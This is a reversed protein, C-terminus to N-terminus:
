CRYGTVCAAMREVMAGLISDRWLIGTLPDDPTVFVARQDALDVKGATAAISQGAALLRAARERTAELLRRVQATYRHDHMVPGHGPVMATIPTAELARLVDIWPVPYSEWAYPVPHVVIDGSFLIREAPLYVTVDHPSNARGRDVLEVARAGLDLAMSGDFLVDPPSVRVQAYEELQVRREGIITELTALEAPSYRRGTSDRGSRRVSDLHAVIGRLASGPAVASTPYRAQNVAIFDRNQRAGIIALGPFSDRYVANGHTHDGHWHTNVLWRVPLNTVARILGIDARARSPYLTADVVLVGAAGLIVGTNGHPWDMTNTPWEHTADEHLITFVGEALRVMRAGRDRAVEQAHTAAPAAFLLAFVALRAAKM